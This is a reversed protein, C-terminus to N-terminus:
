AKPPQRKPNARTMVILHWVGLPVGFVLGLVALFSTGFQRDLWYGLAGPVAMELAATTVKTAWQMADGLWSLDVARMRLQQEAYFDDGDRVLYLGHDHLEKDIKQLNAEVTPDDQDPFLEATNGLLIRRKGHHYPLEGLAERVASLEAM